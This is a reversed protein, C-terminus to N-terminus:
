ISEFIIVVTDSDETYKLIISSESLEIIIYTDVDVTLYNEDSSMSWSYTEVAENDYCKVRGPNQELIGNSKFTSYDDKVCDELTEAIGDFTMSVMRWQKSTLIDKRSTRAPTIFSTPEGYGTGTKNTAYARVFYVTYPNLGTLVSIFSGIGSSDSTKRDAITPRTSTSWCVGRSTVASEGDSNINGGCSATTSTINTVEATTLVPVEEKKCGISSCILILIFFLLNCWFSNRPKMIVM